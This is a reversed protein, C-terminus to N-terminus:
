KILFAAKINFIDPWFLSTLIKFNDAKSGLFKIIFLLTHFIVNYLFCIAVVATIMCLLTFLVMKPYFATKKILTYFSKVTKKFEVKGRDDQHEHLDKLLKFMEKESEFCMEYVVSLSFFILGLMVYMLLMISYSKQYVKNPEGHLEKPDLDEDLLAYFRNLCYDKIITENM